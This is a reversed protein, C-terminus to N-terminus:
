GKQIQRFAGLLRDYPQAGVIKYQDNIIFTPAGTVGYARAEAMSRAIREEYEPNTLAALAEDANLGVAEAAERLVAEEAFNRGRVFYDQFLRHHIADAKGKDRAYEALLWANHTNVLRPPPNIPLGLEDARAKLGRHMQQLQQPTTGFYEALDVGEAPTDPHLEFPLWTV